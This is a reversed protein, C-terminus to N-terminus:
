YFLPSLRKRFLFDMCQFSTQKKDGNTVAHDYIPVHIDETIHYPQQFRDSFSAEGTYTQQMSLLPRNTENGKLNEPMTVFTHEEVVKERFM